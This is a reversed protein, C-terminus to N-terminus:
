TDVHEFMELRKWDPFSICNIENFLVVHIADASNGVCGKVFLVFCGYVLVSGRLAMFVGVTRRGEEKEFCFVNNFM